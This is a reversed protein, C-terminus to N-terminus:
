GEGGRDSAVDGSGGTGVRVDALARGGPSAGEGPGVHPRGVPYYDFGRERMKEPDYINRGDFVVKESVATGIRDWDPRRYPLWETVLFLGDADRCATYQDAAYEVRDGFIERAREMAAPDHVAVAAGRELLGEVVTISPAERMDDTEPKFALGWVAFRRGTLDEDYHAEVKRLLVYKQAENALHTEEVISLDVGAEEGMRILARVDKPFCSGGYGTGAFLFSSGIRPDEGVGRRVAAVDGGRAECLGALQNMFSIRTALMANAAYKTLEASEPDMFLLPNGTRVFPEYLDEIVPRAADSEVGCVVRDPYMFDEVADGEKLFEPNSVVHFTVDTRPEIERRVKRVTGVPVTSKNVVVTGPGLAPAVTRAVELVHRLDASGDEDPPTGVAIFVVDAGTAAKEVDTTFALRGEALNRELLRDLGPEHIPVEGESLRAIKDADVDACIVNNGTEALCTGVVLGVYGTGVVAIDM